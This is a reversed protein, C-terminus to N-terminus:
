MIEGLFKWWVYDLPFLFLITIISLLICLKAAHKISVGALQMAVVMPASQFPFIVTSFGLVQTMIVAETSFGSKLGMQEAFPTLVAPVGPLTTFIATITATMSLMMFSLFSNTQSLPLWQNFGDGLLKGLGSDNIIASLALIGIVFILPSMKFQTDFSNKDVLGVKPLLLICAASLGIWAASIHHLADTVWFGLTLFLLSILKIEDVSYPNAKAKSKNEKPKDPYLWLILGVIFAMKLLGLVPFHLLLYYAYSPTWDYVAEAAGILVMNPVNAPLVAFTPVHCGFAAALAIGIRGNDLKSFGCQDALAMAIPILLVARGISSPMLFGVFTSVVVTASILRWYRSTIREGFLGAVRLALGTKHIAIGIILGTFILWCATSSFGSFVVSAPALNLLMAGTMLLLATVHEPLASTAFLVIASLLLGATLLQSQSLISTAPSLVLAILILPIALVAILLHTKITM